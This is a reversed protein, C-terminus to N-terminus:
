DEKYPEPLPMWAVPELGEMDSDDIRLAPRWQGRVTYAQVIYYDNECGCMKDHYLLLVDTLDSLPPHDKCPIWQLVTPAHDIIARVSKTRVQEDCQFVTKLEDADILRM